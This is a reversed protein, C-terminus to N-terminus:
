KIDTELNEHTHPIGHEHMEEHSHPSKATYKPAHDHDHEQAHTHYKLTVVPASLSSDMQVEKTRNEIENQYNILEELKKNFDESFTLEQAKEDFEKVLELSKRKNETSADLGMKKLIQIRDYADDGYIKSISNLVSKRLETLMEQSKGTLNAAPMNKDLMELLMVTSYLQTNAKSRRAQEETYLKGTNKDVGVATELKQINNINLMIDIPNSFIKTKLLTAVVEPATEMAYSPIVEAMSYQYNAYQALTQTAMKNSEDGIKFKSLYKNAEGLMKEYESFTTGIANAFKENLTKMLRMHPECYGFSPAYYFNPLEHSSGQSDSSNNNRKLYDNRQITNQYNKVGISAINM